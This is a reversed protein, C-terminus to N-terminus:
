FYQSQIMESSETLKCDYILLVYQLIIHMKQIGKWLCLAGLELLLVQFMETVVSVARM